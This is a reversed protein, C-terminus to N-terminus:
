FNGDDSKIDYKMFIVIVLHKFYSFFDDFRLLFATKVLDINKNIERRHPVEIRNKEIKNM